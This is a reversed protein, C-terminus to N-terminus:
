SCLVNDFLVDNWTYYTNPISINYMTLYSCSVPTVLYYKGIYKLQSVWWGGIKTDPVLQIKILKEVAM